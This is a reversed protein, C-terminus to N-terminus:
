RGHSFIIILIKSVFWMVYGLAVGMTVGGVIAVRVLFRVSYDAKNYKDPLPIILGLFALVTMIGFFIHHGYYLFIVLSFCFVFLSVLLVMFTKEQHRQKYEQQEQSIPCDKEEM